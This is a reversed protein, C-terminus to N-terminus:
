TKELEMNIFKLNKNLRDKCYLFDVDNIIIEICRKAEDYKKNLCCTVSLEDLLFKGYATYQVNKYKQKADNYSINLACKLLEYANDMYKHKNCYLGLYFYPEARDPFKEMAKKYYSSIEDFSRGIETYILAINVYIEYITEYQTENNIITECKNFLNLANDYDGNKKYECASNYMIYINNDIHSITNFTYVNTTIKTYGDNNQSLSPVINEKIINEKIINEKIINKKNLPIQFEIKEM